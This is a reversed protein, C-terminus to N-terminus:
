KIEQFFSKNEEIDKPSIEILMSDNEKIKLSEIKNQFDKKKSKM